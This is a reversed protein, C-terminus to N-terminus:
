FKSLIELLKQFPGRWERRGRECRANIHLRLWVILCCQSDVVISWPCCDRVKLWPKIIYASNVFHMWRTLICIPKMKLLHSFYMYPSSNNYIFKRDVILLRASIRSALVALAVNFFPWLHLPKLPHDGPCRSELCLGLQLSFHGSKVLLLHGCFLPLCLTPSRGAHTHRCRPETKSLWISFYTM